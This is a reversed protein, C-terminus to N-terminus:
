DCLDFIVKDDQLIFNNNNWFKSDEKLTINQNIKQLHREIKEVNSYKVDISMVNNVLFNESLIVNDAKSIIISKNIVNCYNIFYKGEHIKYTFIIKHLMQAMKAKQNKIESPERVVCHEYKLVAFTETDIYLIGSSKKPAPYGYGTSYSGPSNNVFSIKYVKRDNYLLVEEKKLNYSSTKYLVNSKSLIVDRDFIFAFNTIKGYQNNVNDEVLTRMQQIEGYLEEDPTNVGKMGNSNYTNIVAEINSTIKNKKIIQTRFYFKQNYSDQYYNLEINNRAKTVIDEATLSKRASNVVVEDLFIGEFKHSRLRINIQNKNTRILSSINITDSAYGMASIILKDQFDKKQITFSFAGDKNAVISRETKVLSVEANPIVKRNKSDTIIGVISFVEEKSNNIVPKPYSRIEPQYSKKIFLLGDFIFSWKAKFPINGLASCYYSNNENKNFEFFTKSNPKDNLQQEISNFPPKLIPVPKEDVIGYEGEYSSFAISYIQEGFHKKLLEGMPIAGELLKSGDGTKYDTYGTNKIENNAYQKFYDETQDTYEIQNINKSFHYSAGWCIMKENPYIESLFILNKAMQEDRPNQVAIKQKQLQMIDFSVDAIKSIFVQKMIKEDFNINEIKNFSDMILDFNKYLELSDKKNSAVDELDRSVFSKEISTIVSESFTIKRNQFLKILDDMYHNKFISGEQSDFGLIKIPDNQKARENVYDMLNQFAKTDSWIGFVAESFISINSKNESYQKFAKYHDYFGSEFVITNYGMKEHLYKVIEVKEDFTAGDGHSQEGLLVIKKSKIVNELFSYDNATNIIISKGEIPTQPFVLNYFLSILVTTFIKM